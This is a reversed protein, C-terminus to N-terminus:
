LKVIERQLSYDSNKPLVYINVTLLFYDPGSEPCEYVITFEFGLSQM